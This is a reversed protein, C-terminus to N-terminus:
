SSVAGAEAPQAAPHEAAFKLRKNEEDYTVRVTDGEKVDGRLIHEALPDEIHKEVARRM